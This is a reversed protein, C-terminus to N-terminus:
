RASTHFPVQAHTQGDTRGDTWGDRGNWGGGLGWHEGGIEENWIEVRILFFIDDSSDLSEIRAEICRWHHHLSAAM